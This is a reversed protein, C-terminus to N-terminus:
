KLAERLRMIQNSLFPAFVLDKPRIGDLIKNALAIKKTLERNEQLADDAVMNSQKVQVELHHATELPVWKKAKLESEDKYCQGITYYDENVTENYKRFPALTEEKIQDFTKAQKEFSSMTTEGRTESM